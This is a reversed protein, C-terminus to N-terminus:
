VWLLYSLVVTGGTPEPLLSGGSYHAQADATKQPNHRSPTPRSTEWSWGSFVNNMIGLLLSLYLNGDHPSSLLKRALKMTNPM